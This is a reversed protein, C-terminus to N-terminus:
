PCTRALRFGVRVLRQRPSVAQCANSQMDAPSDGFSGNRVSRRVLDRIIEKGSSESSPRRTDQCWECVNGALDFGGLDNPKRTAVAFLSEEGYSAYAALLEVTEGFSYPTSSGARCVSEWEEDTPLRYGTLELANARITMGEAFEGRENPQYCWQGEPIGEQQSLWNCYAVAHYWSLGEM